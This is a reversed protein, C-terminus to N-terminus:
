ICMQSADNKCYITGSLFLVCLSFNSFSSKIVQWMTRPVGSQHEGQIRTFHDLTLTIEKGNRRAIHRLVELADEDRHKAILYKSSEQLDFVAFRLFFM